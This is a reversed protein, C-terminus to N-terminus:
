ADQYAGPTLQRTTDLHRRMLAAAIDRDGSELRDLIEMHEAHNIRVREFGHQWNYCAFRRLRSQRQICAHFHRNGSALALGEHFAANMEFLAVSSTETWPTTISLTHRARMDEAWAPDLIFGASLIAAPEIVMRFQYSEERAAADWSDNFRWGYGPKREVMDLDALLVLAKRIAHRPVDYRRMLETESIEDDLRRQDRDRAIRILLDDKPEADNKTAEPLAPHAILEMGRQPRHALVGCAVLHNLAARVPSRSVALREALRNENLRAGIHLADEHILSTIRDVLDQQLRTPVGDVRELATVM